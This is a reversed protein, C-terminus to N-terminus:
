LVELSPVCSRMCTSQMSGPVPIWSGPIGTFLADHLTAAGASQCLQQQLQIPKKSIGMKHFSMFARLDGYDKICHVCVKEHHLHVPQPLPRPTQHTCIETGRTAKPSPDCRLLFRGPVPHSSFGGLFDSRCAVPIHHDSRDPQLNDMHPPPASYRRPASFQMEELNAAECGATHGPKSADHWFFLAFAM